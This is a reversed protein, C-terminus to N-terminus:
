LARLVVCTQDDDLHGRTLASVDELIRAITDAATLEERCAREVIDLTADYGLPVGPSTEAEAIGDSCFIVCDGTDLSIEATGFETDDRVGLPYASLPIEEIRGNIARYVYPYPCGCDALEIRRSDVHLMGVVFCVFKRAELKRHLTTNLQRLLTDLNNSLGAVSELIGSFMVVPIAAEMAKGSVDALGFLFRSGNRYYNFFDGGVRNAPVCRGAVDYGDILPSEGPMLGMQLDHATDLEGRLARMRARNIRVGQIGVVAGFAGVLFLFWPQRWVPAVVTFAYRAPTPDVNGDLDRARVEFRHDGFSLGRLSYTNAGRFTSWPGDDVRWSYTFREEGTDKWADVGRWGFTVFASSTLEDSPLYTFETDPESADPAYRTVWWTDNDFFRGKGLWVAGSPEPHVYRVDDELLGDERALSTWGAGDYVSAGTTTGVWIRGRADEAIEWVDPGALGDEQTFATWEGDRLRMVGSFADPVAACAVWLAGDAALLLRVVKADWPMGDAEVFRWTGDRHSWLGEWSGVYLTGDPAAVADYVRSQLETDYTRGPFLAPFTHVTWRSGDFSVIGHGRTNDKLEPVFWVTGERDEVIRRGLPVDGPWDGRSFRTVTGDTSIRTATTESAFWVGGDRTRHATRTTDPTELVTHWGDGAQRAIRRDGASWLTGSGDRVVPSKGGDKAGEGSVSTRFGKGDRMRFWLTGDADAYPPGALRVYSRWKGGGFDFRTVRLGPVWLIDGVDAHIRYRSRGLDGPGPLPIDKRIWRGDVFAHLAGGGFAWVTGDSTEAFSLASPPPRRFEASVSLTRARLGGDLRYTEWRGDRHRAVGNRTAAWLDGSRTAFVAHVGVRSPGGSAHRTWGDGDLRAVGDATAVWLAGGPEVALDDVYPTGPDSPTAVHSWQGDRRVAIGGAPEEDLSPDRSLAVYLVGGGAVLRVPYPVVDVVPLPLDVAETEGDAIRFLGDASAVWVYGDHVLIDHCAVPASEITRWTLGDYVCVGMRGAFWVRGDPAVTIARIRGEILGDAAEFFRWSAPHTSPDVRVDQAVAGGVLCLLATAVVRACATM